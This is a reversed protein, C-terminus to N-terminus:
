DKGRTSQTMQDKGHAAAALVCAMVGERLMHIGVMAPMGKSWLAVEPAGFAPMERGSLVTEGLVDVCFM